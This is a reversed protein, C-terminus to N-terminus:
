RSQFPSSAPGRRHPLLEVVSSKGIIEDPSMSLFDVMAAADRDFQGISPSRKYLEATLYQPLAHTAGSKRPREYLARSREVIEEILQGPLRVFRASVIVDTYSDVLLLELGEPKASSTDPQAGPGGLDIFPASLIWHGPEGIQAGLVLSLVGVPNRQSVLLGAAFVPGELARRDGVKIHRSFIVLCCVGHSFTLAVLTSGRRLSKIPSPLGPTFVSEDM